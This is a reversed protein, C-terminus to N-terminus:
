PAKEKGPLASMAILVQSPLYFFWMGVRVFPYLPDPILGPSNFAGVCLDCCIFLTLGAAFVRWKKGALTWAALTNVLLQSFYLGALLNLPTAQGLAYLALAALLPVGARLLYWSRRSALRLRVLYVSQVGLFILVGVAYYRDAVLLLFDALATLALAPLVLRDGGRGACWASFGLCLLISAYKVAVDPGALDLVDMALFAAYLVAEVALFIRVVRRDM